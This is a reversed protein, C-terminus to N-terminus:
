HRHAATVTWPDCNPFLTEVFRVSCGMDINAFRLWWYIFLNYGDTAVDLPQFGFIDQWDAQRSCLTVRATPTHDSSLHDLSMHTQALVDALVASLDIKIDRL